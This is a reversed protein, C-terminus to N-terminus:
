LVFAKHRQRIMLDSLTEKGFAEGKIVHNNWEANEKFACLIQDRWMTGYVCGNKRFIWCCVPLVRTNQTTYERKKRKECRSSYVHAGVNEHMKDALFIPKERERCACDNAMPTHWCAKLYGAIDRRENLTYHDAHARQFTLSGPFVYTKVM